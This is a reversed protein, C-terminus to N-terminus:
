QVKGSVIQCAVHCAVLDFSYPNDCGHRNKYLTNREKVAMFAAGGLSESWYIRDLDVLKGFDHEKWAQDFAAQDTAGLSERYAALPALLTRMPVEVKASGSDSTVDPASFGCEYVATSAATERVKAFFATVHSRGTLAQLRFFFSVLPFGFSHTDCNDFYVLGTKTTIKCNEAQFSAALSAADYPTATLGQGSVFTAIQAIRDAQNWTFQNCMDKAFESVKDLDLTACNRVIQDASALTYFHGFPEDLSHVPSEDRLVRLIEPLTSEALLMKPSTHVAASILDPLGETLFPHDILGVLAAATPGEGYTLVHIIEHAYLTSSFDAATWDPLAAIFVGGGSAESEMSGLGQRTESSITVAVDMAFTAAPDQGLVAATKDNLEGAKEIVALADTPLDKLAVACYDTTKSFRDIAIFSLRTLHAKACAENLTGDLRAQLGDMRTVTSASYTEHASRGSGLIGFPSKMSAGAPELGGLLISLGILTFICNRSLPM